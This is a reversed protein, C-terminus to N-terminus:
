PFSQSVQLSCPSWLFVFLTLGGSGSVSGGVLSHISAPGLSRCVHLVHRRIPGGVVPAPATESDTEQRSISGTGRVPGSHRAETLIHWSRCHSSMGSPPTLWLPAGVKASSISLFSNPSSRCSPIRPPFPNSIRHHYIFLCVFLCGGLLGPLPLV